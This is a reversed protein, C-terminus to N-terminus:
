PPSCLARSHRESQAALQDSSSSPLRVGFNATQMSSGGEQRSIYEMYETKEKLLSMCDTDDPAWPWPTLQHWTAPSAPSSTLDRKRKLPRRDAAGQVDAEPLEIKGNELKYRYLLGTDVRLQDAKAMRKGVMEKFLPLDFFPTGYGEV